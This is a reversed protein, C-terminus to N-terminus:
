TVRRSAQGGLLLYSSLPCFYPRSQLLYSGRELLFSGRPGFFPRSQVLYRGRPLLYSAKEGWFSGRELLFSGRPRSNRSNLRKKAQPPLNQLKKRGPFRKSLDLM